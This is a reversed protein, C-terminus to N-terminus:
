PESRIRAAVVEDRCWRGWLFLAFAAFCWWEIGYLLNRLATFTPPDPLSDPTVATLGSRLAKPTDLIVFGGYLDQDFRQLLEAIRLTPLVDDLPDPDAEGAAEGPQLWGAVRSAGALPESSRDVEESWGLVVPIAPADTCPGSDCTSLSTVTWFGTQDRHQRGAVYVTSDPVWEGTVEVPLGLGATPFPDDPGMVDELPTPDDNAVEAARDRRHEQWSDIQWQGLLAALVVGAVAALHLLLMAPRTLAHLAGRSRSPM